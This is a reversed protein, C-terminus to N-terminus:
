TRACFNEASKQNGVSGSLIYSNTKESPFTFDTDFDKIEGEIKSLKIAM